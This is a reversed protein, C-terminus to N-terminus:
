DREYGHRAEIEREHRRSTIIPKGLRDVKCGSLNRPLQSSVYPYTASPNVGVQTTSAVRRCREGDITVYDGIRPANVMPFSAEIVTGDPKQFPYLM